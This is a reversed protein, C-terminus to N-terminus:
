YDQLGLNNCLRILRLRSHIDLKTYIDSVRNKVTQLAINLNQSIEQNDMGKGVLALIERERRSLLHRVIESTLEADISPEQGSSQNTGSHHTTYRKHGSRVLM